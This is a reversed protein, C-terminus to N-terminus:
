PPWKVCDVCNIISFYGVHLNAQKLCWECFFVQCQVRVLNYKDKMKEKKKKIWTLRFFSVLWTSWAQEAKLLVQKTGRTFYSCLTNGMCICKVLYMNWFEAVSNRVNHTFNKVYCNHLLKSSKVMQKIWTQLYTITVM